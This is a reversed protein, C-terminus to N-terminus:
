RGFSRAVEGYLKARHLRIHSVIHLGISTLHLTWCEHQMAAIITLNREGPAFRQSLHNWRRAHVDDWAPAVTRYVAGSCSSPHHDVENLACFRSYRHGAHTM